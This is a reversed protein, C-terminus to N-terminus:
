TTISRFFDEFDIVNGGNTTHLGLLSYAVYARREPPAKQFILRADGKNGNHYAVWVNAAIGDLSEYVRDLKEQATLTM